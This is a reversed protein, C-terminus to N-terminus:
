NMYILNIILCLIDVLTGSLNYINNLHYYKKDGGGDKETILWKM